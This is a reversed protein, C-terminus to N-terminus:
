KGGTGGTATGSGGRATPLLVFDGPKPPNTIEKMQTGWDHIDGPNQIYWFTGTKLNKDFEGVLRAIGFGNWTANMDRGFWQISTYKGDIVLSGTGHYVEQLRAPNSYERRLNGSTTVRPESQSVRDILLTGTFSVQLKGEAPLDRVGLLKFSGVNTKFYITGHNQDAPPVFKARPTAVVQAAVL